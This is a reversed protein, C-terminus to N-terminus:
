EQPFQRPPPGTFVPRILQSEMLYFTDAPCAFVRDQPSDPQSLGLFTNVSDRYNMYTAPGTNPLTNGYDGAYLHVALNIQKPSSLCVTRKVRAKANAVVPLLLAALIAIIAIVVLLEM